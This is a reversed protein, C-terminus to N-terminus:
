KVRGSQLKYDYSHEGEKRFDEQYRQLVQKFVEEYKPIFLDNKERMNKLIDQALQKTESLDTKGGSFSTGKISGPSVNLIRNASGAKKLEVNVSEIFIKLSAKTAAYISFFPSSMFGSISVMLSCYFDKEKLLKDYFHKIVRIPAIANVQFYTSILSEEINEFLELKGFGATIILSNIDDFQNFFSYDQSTLDFVFSKIKDGIYERSLERKDVIYINKIAEDQELEKAMALGIGSAGGVILVNRM